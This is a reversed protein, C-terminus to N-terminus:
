GGIPRGEADQRLFEVIVPAAMEPHTMFFAHATGELEHYIAHSTLECIREIQEPSVLPDQEGRLVLVPHGHDDLARYCDSQDGLAGSRILSLLSPGFGPKSLQDRFKQVFRGDEIDRYRKTRRRVLMPIVYAPMLFEGLIPINLWRVRPDSVTFDMLPAALVLREFRDPHQRVLRAGVAAGLSHGLVHCPGAISLADFFEGLQRLFLAYDHVTEPRDSYGHGFLDPRLTRLGAAHLFPVLRDFEWGPVTAGHLMLLPTGDEPGDIRYHCLGDSLAVFDHSDPLEM